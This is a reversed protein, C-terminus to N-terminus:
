LAYQLRFLFSTDRGHSDFAAPFQDAITRVVQATVRLNSVPYWNVAGTFTRFEQSSTNFDTFGLHFFERDIDANSYRIALELGGFGSSTSKSPGWLPRLPFPDADQAGRPWLTPHHQSERQRFPRSDYSEGTLMWSFAMTWATVQDDLDVEGLPTELGRYGGQVISHFFRFPGFDIGYGLHLFRSSDAEFTGASFLVNRLPTAVDLDGRFSDTYSYAISAFLGSVVPIEYFGLLSFSADVWRLPFLVTRASARPGSVREGRLNFGDGVSAALDYSFIGNAFEGDVRLTWDTRSDLYAPFSYGAFSLDELPISEEIGLPVRMLGASFRFRRSLDSPTYALWAEELGGHTDIGKLDVAIRAGLGRFTGDARILARDIAIGSDRQNRDDYLLADLAVLGGLHFRPDGDEARVVLGDRFSLSAPSESEAPLALALLVGCVGLTRRKHRM